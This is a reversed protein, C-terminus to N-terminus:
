VTNDKGVVMPIFEFNSVLLGSGTEACWTFTLIGLIKRFFVITNPRLGNPNSLCFCSNTLAIPMDYIEVKHMKPSHIVIKSTCKQRKFM